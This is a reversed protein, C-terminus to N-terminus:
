FIQRSLGKLVSNRVVRKIKSIQTQFYQFIKQGKTKLGPLFHRPEENVQIQQYKNKRKFRFIKIKKLKKLKIEKSIYGLLEHRM